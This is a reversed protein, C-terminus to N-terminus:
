KRGKSRGSAGASANNRYFASGDCRGDAMFVPMYSDAGDRPATSAAVAGISGGAAKRLSEETAALQRLHAFVAENQRLGREGPPVPLLERFNLLIEGDENVLAVSTRYNSTDLGLVATNM